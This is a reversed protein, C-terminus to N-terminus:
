IFSSSMSFVNSYLSIWLPNQSIGYLTPFNGWRMCPLVIKPYDKKISLVLYKYYIKILNSTTMQLVELPSCLYKIHEGIKISLNRKLPIIVIFYLWLSGKWFPIKVVYHFHRESKQQCLSANPIYYICVLALFVLFDRWFPM